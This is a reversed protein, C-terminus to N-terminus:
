PMKVKICLKTLTISIIPTIIIYFMLNLIFENTINNQTFILAAAILFVFTSNIAATYAM